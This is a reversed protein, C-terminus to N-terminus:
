KLLPAKKEEHKWQLIGEPMLSFINRLFIDGSSVIIADLLIFNVQTIAGVVYIVNMMMKRNQCM